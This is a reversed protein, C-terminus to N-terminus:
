LLMPTQETSYASPAFFWSEIAWRTKSMAPDYSTAHLM